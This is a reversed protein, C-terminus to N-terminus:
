TLFPSRNTGWSLLSGSTTLAIVAEANTSGTVVVKSIAVNSPLAVRVPIRTYSSSDNLFHFFHVLRLIIFIFSVRFVSNDGPIDVWCGASRVSEPWPVM